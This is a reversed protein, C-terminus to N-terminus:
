LYITSFYFDLGFTCLVHVLTLLPLTFTKKKFTNFLTGMYNSGGIM